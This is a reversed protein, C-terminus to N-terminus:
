CRIEYSLQKNKTVVNKRRLKFCNYFIGNINCKNTIFNLINLSKLNRCNNFLNKMNTVKETSFNSLNINTLSECDQFM